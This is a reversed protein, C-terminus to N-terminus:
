GNQMGKVKELVKKIKTRAEIEKTPMPEGGVDWMMAEDALKLAEVLEAILAAQQAECAQWAGESASRVDTETLGRSPDVINNQFWQEFTMPTNNM